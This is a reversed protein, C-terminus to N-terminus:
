KREFKQLYKNIKKVGQLVFMDALMKSSGHDVSYQYYEGLTLVTLVEPSFDSLLSTLHAAHYPKGLQNTMNYNMQQSRNEPQRKFLSGIKEFLTPPKSTYALELKSPLQHYSLLPSYEDAIHTRFWEEADAAPNIRAAWKLFLTLSLLSKNIDGNHEELFMPLLDSISLPQKKEEFLINIKRIHDQNQETGGGAATHNAAEKASPRLSTPLLSIILEPIADRLFKVRPLLLLVDRASMGPKIFIAQEPNVLLGQLKKIEAEPLPSLLLELIKETSLYETNKEL